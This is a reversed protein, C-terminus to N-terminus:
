GRRQRADFARSLMNGINNISFMILAILITAPIWEWWRFRFVTFTRASAILTGLSPMDNPFGFGLFSLGAEMGMVSVANLVMGAIITTSLNPLLHYFILRVHSTGLTISAQIYELEKEQILRARVVKAIGLWAAFSLMMTYNFMSFGGLIALLIILLIVNPLTSISDIIGMMFSDVRGGFYGSILGYIIGFVSSLLTVLITITLSNRAAIILIMINERGHADTGLLHNLSPRQNVTRPDFNSQFVETQSIVFFTIILFIIVASIFIFCSLAVKDRLMERKIINFTTDKQHANVEQDKKHLKKSM